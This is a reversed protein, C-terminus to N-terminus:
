DSLKASAAATVFAFFAKENTLAITIEELSMEKYDSCTKIASIIVTAAKLYSLPGLTGTNMSPVVLTKLGFDAAYILATVACKGTHEEIEEKSFNNGDKLVPIQILYRYNCGESILSCVADDPNLTKNSTMKQYDAIAWSAPSHLFASSVGTTSIGNEYQPVVCAEATESMVGSLRINVKIKNFYVIIEKAEM